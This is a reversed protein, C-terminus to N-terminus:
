HNIKEISTLTNRAEQGVSYQDLDGNHYLSFIAQDNLLQKLRQITKKNV